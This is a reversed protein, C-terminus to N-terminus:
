EYFGDAPILARQKRFAPGYAKSSTVNELRANSMKSAMSRDKAWVPLFGWHALTLVWQGDHELVILANQMPGLNFRIRINRHESFEEFPAEFRLTLQEARTLQTIRGCM